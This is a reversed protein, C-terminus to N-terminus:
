VQCLHYFAEIVGRVTEINSSGSHPRYKTLWNKVARYQIQNSRPSLSRINDLTPIFAKTIMDGSSHEKLDIGLSCIALAEQQIDGNDKALKQWQEYYTVAQQYDGLVDFVEGLGSLCIIDLEHNIKGLLLSYVIIQQQYYGWTHLQKHLEENTPSDIQFLAIKSSERWAKVVSLHYFAELYGHIKQLNSTSQAPYYKTLWNISARFHARKWIPNIFKVYSPDIGIKSLILENAQTMDSM